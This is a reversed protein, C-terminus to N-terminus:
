RPYQLLGLNYMIAIVGWFAFFFGSLILIGANGIEEGRTKAQQTRYNVHHIVILPYLCFVLLVLNFFIKDIMM